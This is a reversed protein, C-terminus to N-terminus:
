QRLADWLLVAVIILGPIAGVIISALTFKFVLWVVHGFPLELRTVVIERAPSSGSDPKGAWPQLPPTRTESVTM